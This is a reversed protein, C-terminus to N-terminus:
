KKAGGRSRKNAGVAEASIRKDFGYVQERDARRHLKDNSKVYAKLDAEKKKLKVSAKEFAEKDGLEDFLMCERKQKRVARELARQVQTAKYLEDNADMDDTPFYRRVNVEELYPFIHHTCNIGLIGDPQGYSSDKWHPYEKSKNKRDFIRGQDKACKPRAGPHSDVIILDIGYDDARAMQVEAAMTNSTSRMAMNVYAEPTWERGSKDVFAPIGQNNFERICRKLAQQRSQAGIVASTANRDLIDIFTQKDAMEDATSAINNVLSKFASRAKYLMTTNCLNLTSKAQGRMTTIVQKVNKSQRVPVANGVLGHKALQKMGPEIEDMVKEAMDTLMREMAAQSLGTARAIIRINEKNLKGIEALKKMLWEDTAIPQKYDKCHRIINAMLEEELDQYVGAPIDAARQNELLTM